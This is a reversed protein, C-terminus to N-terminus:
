ITELPTYIPVVTQSKRISLFKANHFIFNAIIQNIDDDSCLLIVREKKTVCDYRLFFSPSIISGNVSGVNCNM